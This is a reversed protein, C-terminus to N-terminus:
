NNKTQKTLQDFKEMSAASNRNLNNIATVETNIQDVLLKVQDAAGVYNGMLKTQIAGALQELSNSYSVLHDILILRQAISDLAIQKAEDPKVSDVTRAMTALEQSLQDAKAKIEASKTLLSNTRLLADTYDRKQNLNYIESLDASLANSLGVIQDAVVAGQARADQFRELAAQSRSISQIATYVGGAILLIGTVIAVKHWRLLIM